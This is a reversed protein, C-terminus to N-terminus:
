WRVRLPFFARDGILIGKDRQLTTFSGLEVLDGYNNWGKGSFHDMWYQTFFSTDPRVDGIRLEPWAVAEDQEVTVDM